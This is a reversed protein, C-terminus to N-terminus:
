IFKKADQVLQVLFPHTVYFKKCYGSCLITWLLDYGKKCKVPENKCNELQIMILDLLHMGTLTSFDLATYYVAHDYSYIPTPPMTVIFKAVDFLKLHITTELPREYGFKSFIPNFYRAQCIAIMYKTLKECSVNKHFKTLDTFLNFLEMFDM